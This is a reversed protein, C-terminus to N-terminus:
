RDSQMLIRWDKPYYNNSRNPLVKLWGLGLGKYAALNWGQRAGDMHIEEKRLFQLATSAPLEVRPIKKGLDLSLALAHDPLLQRGAWKGMTVGARRIYLPSLAEVVSLVPGSMGVMTDNLMYFASLGPELWEQGDQAQQKSAKELKIRNKRNAKKETAQQKRFASLFFGEGQLLNPYLRYGYGKKVPSLSEVINWGAELQLPAAVTDYTSLMWDVVQEDEQMSYSCTSYILWGNEKLCPWIDSLIRQQRQSCLDVLEESWENMAKPDRRFLGSGSCPADVVILDFLLDTKSFDRPDNCTIVQNSNGWKVLNEELVSVRSKIVENSVLVSDDPLLSRLHTSKGGPAACLDLVRLGNRQPLLQLIAQELLMSSAEQVYYAGAHLFPDLTYKPRVPLYYGFASWPVQVRDPFSLNAPDEVKQPNLRISQVQEGSAHIACFGAEQWGPAGAMHKNFAAPITM